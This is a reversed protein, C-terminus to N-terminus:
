QFIDTTEIYGYTTIYKDKYNDKMKFGDSLDVGRLEMVNLRQIYPTSPFDDYGLQEGDEPVYILTDGIYQEEASFDIYDSSKILSPKSYVSYAIVTIVILGVFLYYALVQVKKHGRENQCLKGIALAPLLFLYIEGFRPSPASIFWFALSCSMTIVVNLIHGNKKLIGQRIERIIMIPALVVNIYLFIELIPTLSMRLAPYWESIPANHKYVDNLGWGWTKIENREFYLTFKPMKWDVPFIDIEPYPYLLYGSIVVNRALFPLLIIIGLLLYKVIFTYKKHRIYYIIPYISLLVLMAVSLKLTLAYVSLMCLVAYNEMEEENVEIYDVWKTFVYTMIALAFTDTGPSSIVLTNRIKYLTFLLVLRLIDSTYLRRNKLGKVSLISYCGLITTIFGNMSHLSQGFVFKLSFLAQLSLFASNYAFRSHLLGLGPVVGYDEIWHISQVHYLYTDYNKIESSSIMLTLISLLLIIGYMKPTTQHIITYLYTIIKKRYFLLILVNTTLLICSAIFGVKYFLSFGQAFVTLACIGVLIILELSLNLKSKKSLNELIFFGCLFSTLGIWLWSFAIMLM